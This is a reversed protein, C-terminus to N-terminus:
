PVAFVLTDPTAALEERYIETYIVLMDEHWRPVMDGGMTARRFREDTTVPLLATDSGDAPDVAVVMAPVNNTNSPQWAVIQEDDASLVGLTRGELRETRWVEEGTELDIAALQNQYETINRYGTMADWGSPDVRDSQRVLIVKGDSVVAGPCDQMGASETLCPDLYDSTRNHIDGHERTDLVVHSGDDPNLAWLGYTGSQNVEVVPPDASVVQKLVSDDGGETKPLGWEWLQNLEADFARLSGGTGTSSNSDAPTRCVHKALLIDGFGAYRYDFCEDKEDPVENIREGTNIDLLHGGAPSSVAVTEGVVVPVDAVGPVGRGGIAPLETTFLEEGTSIDLVTLRACEREGSGRLLAVRNGSHEASPSCQDPEGDLPFSWAQEGTERDFAAVRNVVRKVLHNDTVWLGPSSVVAADARPQATQWRLEGIGGAEKKGSSWAQYAPKKTHADKFLFFWGGLATAALVAFVTALVILVRKGKGKPPPQRHPPGSQGPPMGYPPQAGFQPQGYPGGPQQPFQQPTQQPGRYPQQPPQQSPNQYPPQPGFGPAGPQPPQTM